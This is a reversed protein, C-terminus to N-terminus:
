VCCQVTWPSSQTCHLATCNGGVLNLAPDVGCTMFSIYSNVSQHEDGKKEEGEEVKEMGPLMKGEQQMPLEEDKIRKKEVEDMKEMEPLMKGEQQMPLEEDEIRKSAANKEEILRLFVTCLEKLVVKQHCRRSRGGRNDTSALCCEDVSQGYTLKLFSSVSSLEGSVDRKARKVM